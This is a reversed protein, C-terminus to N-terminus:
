VKKMRVQQSGDTYLYRKVKKTTTKALEEERVTFQKVRKFTALNNCRTKIEDRILAEVKEKTQTDGKEAFYVDLQEINPVVIAQVEPETVNPGGWVLCELIYPSKLLEAEVEEPYINKGNPTVIVAKKRGHLHLFGDKDFYGLDGTRLWGDSIAAATAEPNKYYGQMVNEGRVLIEDDELKIEVNALPLGAAADNFAEPRNVAVLPSAETLGYGQLFGIGLDRFGKSVQPDIAAGGSILLRLSGGLKRHLQGFIRRRLNLGFIRQVVGAIGNGLKFKFEGRQAIGERIRRYMAEYLLPVGLMVTSRTEALNDAVRRLSECCSAMAGRYIPILMGATCEYTHHLPLVSLFRDDEDVYVSMCTGMINAALSRHSLMVGKSSGMTGSTFIIAALQDPEVSRRAFGDEGEAIRQRGIKLVVELPKVEERDNGGDMNIILRLHPLRPKLDSLMEVYKDSTVVFKSESQFLIHFVEQEKLERDVPVCVSGSGAVALYAAPWESRNESMIAARDGEGLGMTILATALERVTTELEAYTVTQWVGNVKSQLATKTRFKHCSKLLLDRVDTIPEVEYWPYNHKM